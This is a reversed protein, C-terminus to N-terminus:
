LPTNNLRCLNSARPFTIMVPMVILRKIAPLSIGARKLINRASAPMVIQRKRLWKPVDWYMDTSLISVMLADTDHINEGDQLSCLELGCQAGVAQLVQLGFTFDRDDYHLGSGLSEFAGIQFGYAKM